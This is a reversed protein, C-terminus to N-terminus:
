SPNVSDSLHQNSKICIKTRFRTRFQRKYLITLTVTEVEQVYLVKFQLHVGVHACLSEGGGGDGGCM